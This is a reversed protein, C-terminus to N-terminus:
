AHSAHCTPACLPRRTIASRAQYPACVCRYIAQRQISSSHRLCLAECTSPLSDPLPTYQGASHPTLSLELKDLSDPRGGALM